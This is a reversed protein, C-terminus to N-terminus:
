EGQTAWRARLWGVAALGALGGVVAIAAMVALFQLPRMWSPEEIRPAANPTPAPFPPSGDSSPVSRQASSLPSAYLEPVAPIPLQSVDGAQDFRPVAYQSGPEDRIVFLHTSAEEAFRVGFGGSHHMDNLRGENQQATPLIPLGALASGRFQVLYMGWALDPYVVEGRENTTHEGLEVWGDDSEYMLGIRIDALRQGARDRVIITLTGTAPPPTPIQSVLILALLLYM